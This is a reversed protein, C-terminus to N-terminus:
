LRIHTRLPLRSPSSGLPPPPATSSCLSTNYPACAAASSPSACSLTSVHLVRSATIDPRARHRSVWNHNGPHALCYPPGPSRSLHARAVSIFTLAHLRSPRARGLSMGTSNKDIRPPPVRNISCSKRPMDEGEIGRSSGRDPASLDTLFRISDQALSECAYQIAM